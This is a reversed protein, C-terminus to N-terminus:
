ADLAKLVKLMVRLDKESRTKRLVAGCDDRLRDIDSRSDASAVADEFSDPIRVGLAQAIIPLM